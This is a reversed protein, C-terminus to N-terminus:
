IRKFKVNKGDIRKSALCEGTVALLDVHCFVCDLTLFCGRCDKFRNETVQLEVGKCSFVEDIKREM